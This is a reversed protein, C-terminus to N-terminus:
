LDKQPDLEEPATYFGSVAHIDEWGDNDLDVFQGGWSWGVKAVQMDSAGTGAVQAFKDGGNHFLLSGRASYSLREDLGDFAATIRKGAKSYMNSVYLDLRGDGDYDGWSAGMGFGRMSDGALPKSVETFKVLGDAGMGDNRYLHDPAFDNCIYADQDGDNDFDAWSCQFTNLWEALQGAEPAVAFKGGRNVLLLNPPGLRELYTHSGGERKVMADVMPKPFFDPAWAKVSHSRSSPGYLALYVDLLGDGNYDAASISSILFPLPMSVLDQSRDTFVGDRNELYLGRELSRGIFADPDGDNDFDAFLACNCFGEIDLGVAPAIDEFTGDGQNRLLLNKGWRGMVYLDDFGDADLDVVALAPHQFLGEIDTYKAYLKNDTRVSFRDKTFLEIVHEEHYSRQARALTAPDPIAEGTVDRFLQKPSQTTVFSKQDWAYLKWDGGGGKEWELLQTAGISVLVGGEIRAVGEFGVKTIFQDDRGAPFSGSVIHFSAEALAETKTDSFFSDWLKLEEAPFNTATHSVNWERSVIEGISGMGHVGSDGPSIEKVAVKGVFIESSSAGLGNGITLANGIKSLAPSLTLILEESRALQAARQEETLSPSKKGSQDVEGACSQVCALVLGVALTAVLRSMEFSVRPNGGASIM